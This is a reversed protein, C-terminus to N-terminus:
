EEGMNSVASSIADGIEDLRDPFLAAYVDLTISASSHGLQRQLTKVDAGSAVAISAFTHRLAHINLGDLGSERVAFRWVRNRWNRVDVHEGRATTFLWDPDTKGETMSRMAKDLLRPFAINRARGNKPSGLIMGGDLGETWTRAIRVRRAELDVDGVRLATAEGVRAGTFALFLVLASNPNEDVDLPLRPKTQCQAAKEALSMVQPITLFVMDEVERTRKPLRVRRVPNSDMWEQEVAWELIGGVDVKVIARISSPSLPRHHSCTTPATGTALEGVWTQVSMQDITSLLTGGWRPEIYNRLERKARNLTSPKVDVKSALWGKVAEDFTHQTNEKPKLTGGLFATNISDALATADGKRDFSETRQRGNPERWAVRWRKWKGFRTTRWREPIKKEASEPKLDSLMRAYRAPADPKLWLDIVKAHM